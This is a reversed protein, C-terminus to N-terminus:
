MQIFGGEQSLPKCCDSRRKKSTTALDLWYEEGTLESAIHKLAEARPDITKYVRHGFGMLKRGCELENTLWAEAQEKNKIQELMTMVEIPAGGHLPGKMAGIAGSVASLLDSETSAIVRAAFTSANMGHEMTLISYASLAKHHPLTPKDGTLMYLFASIHDLHDPPQILELQRLSRYRYAIITPLLSTLSIAQEVKSKSLFRDTGLSSLVIQMANMFHLSEPLHTLIRVAHEPLARQSKMSQTLELLEAENPHKGYWLLYCVEEFSANLALSDAM